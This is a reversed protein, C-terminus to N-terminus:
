AGTTMSSELTSGLPGGKGVDVGSRAVSVIEKAGAEGYVEALHAEFRQRDEGVLRRWCRVLFAQTARQTAQAHEGVLVPGFVREAHYVAQEDDCGIAAMERLFDTVDGLNPHRFESMREILAAWAVALDDPTRKTPDDPELPGRHYENVIRKLTGFNLTTYPGANDAHARIAARVREINCAPMRDLHDLFDALLGPRERVKETSFREALYQTVAARENTTITM